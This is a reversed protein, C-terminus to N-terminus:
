RDDFVLFLTRLILAAMSWCAMPTALIVFIIGGVIM